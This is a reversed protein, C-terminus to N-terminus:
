ISSMTECDHAILSGVCFPARSNWMASHRLRKAMQALQHAVLNREKKTFPLPM